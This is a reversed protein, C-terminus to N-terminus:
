SSTNHAANASTKPTSETPTSSSKKSNPPCESNATDNTSRNRDRPKPNDTRANNSDGVGAPRATATTPDDTTTTGGFKIGSPARSIVAAITGNTSNDSCSTRRTTAVTSPPAALTASM